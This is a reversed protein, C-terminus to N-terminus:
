ILGEKLRRKREEEEKEENLRAIEELENFTVRVVDSEAAM